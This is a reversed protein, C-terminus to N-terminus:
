QYCQHGAVPRSMFDTCPGPLPCCMFGPACTGDVGMYCCDQQFTGSTPVCASLGMDKGSLLGMDKVPNCTGNGPAQSEDCFFGATTCSPPATDYCCHYGPIGCVCGGPSTGLCSLWPHNCPPVSPPPPVCCNQNHEGCPGQGVAFDFPVSMDPLQSMDQQQNPGAMDPPVCHGQFCVLSGACTGNACCSAGVTQGCAQCFGGNCDLATGCTGSCCGAGAPTGCRACTGLSNCANGPMANCMGQCCAQTLNGCAQCYDNGGGGGPPAGNVCASGTQCPSDPNNHCCAVNVVGCPQCTNNICTLGNSCSPNDNCCPDGLRQGCSVCTGGASCISNTCCPQGGSACSGGQAVCPVCKGTVDPADCAYGQTKCRPATPCCPQNDAGCSVCMMSGGCTMFNNPDCTCSVQCGHKDLGCYGAPCSPSCALDLNGFDLGGLDPPTSLDLVVALDAGPPEPEANYCGQPGCALEADSCRLPDDLCNPTLVIDLRLSQGKTFRFNAVQRIRTVANDGDGHLKASIQARVRQTPMTSGPILTATLPLNKCGSTPLAECLAIGISLFNDPLFQDQGVDIHLTDIDRGISIGVQDISLVIETIPASSCGGALLLLALRKV